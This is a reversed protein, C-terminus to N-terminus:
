DSFYRIDLRRRGKKPPLIVVMERNSAHSFLRTGGLLKGKADKVIFPTVAGENSLSLKRVTNGRPKLVFRKKNFEIALPMNIFNIFRFSGESFDSRSDDVGFLSLPLKASENARFFYLMESSGAVLKARGILQFKLEPNPHDIFVELLESKGLSYASSRRSNQLAIEVMKEGSRYYIRKYPLKSLAVVKFSAGGNGSQAQVVVPVSCCFVLAIAVLARLRVSLNMM